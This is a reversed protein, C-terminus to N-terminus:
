EAKVWAAIQRVQDAFAPPLSGEQTVEEGTEEDVTAHLYGLAGDPLVELELENQGTQWAIGIGGGSVPGIRPAPLGEREVASLLRRASELAAPQIAPSGYGDWNARLAALDDLAKQNISVTPMGLLVM